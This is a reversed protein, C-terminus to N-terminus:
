TLCGRGTEIDKIIRLLEVAGLFNDRSIVFSSVTNGAVVLDGPMVNDKSMSEEKGENFTLAM